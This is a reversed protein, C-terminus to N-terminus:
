RAMAQYFELGRDFLVVSVGGVLQWGEALKAKVERALNEENLHHVVIYDRMKNKEM